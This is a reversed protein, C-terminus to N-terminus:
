TIQMIDSKKAFIWVIIKLHKMIELLVIIESIVSKKESIEGAYIIGIIAIIV